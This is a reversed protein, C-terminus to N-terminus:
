KEKNHNKRQLIQFIFVQPLKIRM